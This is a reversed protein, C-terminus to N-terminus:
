YQIVNRCFLVSADEAAFPKTPTKRLASYNAVNCRGFVKLYNEWVKNSAISFVVAYLMCSDKITTLNPIFIGDRPYSNPMVLSASHYRVTIGLSPIKLDFLVVM